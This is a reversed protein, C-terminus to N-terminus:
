VVVCLIVVMLSHDVLVPPHHPPYIWARRMPPGVEELHLGENALAEVLAAGM